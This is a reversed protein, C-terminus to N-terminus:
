GVTGAIGLVIGVRHMAPNHGIHGSASNCPFFRDWGTAVGIGVALDNMKLIKM